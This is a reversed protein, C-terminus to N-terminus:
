IPFGMPNTHSTIETVDEQKDPDFGGMRARQIMRDSLYPWFLRICTDSDDTSWWKWTERSYGEKAEFRITGGMIAAFREVLDKQANFYMQIRKTRGENEYFTGFSGRGEFVGACWAIDIENATMEDTVAAV